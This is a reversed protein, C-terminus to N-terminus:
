SPRQRSAYYWPIALRSAVYIILFLLVSLVVTILIAGFVLDTRFSSNSVQMWIGLGEYAGVYEAFIAAVVAYTASIRMGTFFFPLSTPIRLHRLMQWRSAGMTKLLNMAERETSALGDLLAVVIPFFTVLIVVLVKPLLGFGFWIIMLPAIAIIPITQSGVLLPYLGRRVVAIQDMLLAVTVAVVISAGFGILTEKITQWAHTAAVDRAEWTKEAIRSPAPLVTPDIGSARCYLEWGGIVAAPILIVPLWHVLTRAWGRGEAPAGPADQTQPSSARDVTAGSM